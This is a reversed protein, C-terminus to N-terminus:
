QLCFENGEPDAMVVWYEDDQDFARSRTAGLAVAREVEADVRQRADAADGLRSVNVDLHVRNKAVKPEPVKQFYLRPAAGDPDVIAYAADRREPPVGLAALADDWSDFGEPAPQEVYGLLQAWFAGLAAPNRADFTVQIPTAMDYM